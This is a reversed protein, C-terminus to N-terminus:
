IILGHSDAPRCDGSAEIFNAPAAQFGIGGQLGTVKGADEFIERIDNRARDPLPTDTRVVLDLRKGTKRVVGDLQVRGLVSLDLDILFRTSAGGEEGDETSEDDDRQLYLRIQEIEAGNLFPVPVARWDGSAQPENVTRALQGFDDRLRGIVNSRSRQLERQSADGIWARMEGGRLAGLFMLINAALASDPRAVAVSLLQQAVVPSTEQLSKLADDFAPWKGANLIAHALSRPFPSSLTQPTAIMSRVELEIVSGLPVPTPTAIALPGAPTQIVAHGTPSHGSVTGSLLSGAALLTGSSVPFAPATPSPPHIATIRASFQSGAAHSSGAQGSSASRGATAGHQSTSSANAQYMGAAARAAPSGANPGPPGTTAATQSHQGAAPSSPSGPTAPTSAAPASSGTGASPATAAGTGPPNNPGSAAGGAQLLTATVLSGVSLTVASSATTQTGAASLPSTGTFQALIPPPKGNIATVLFQVLAGRSIIQLSLPTDKPLFLDTQQVLIKGLTTGLELQGSVPPNTIVAELKAGVPLKDLGPPVSSANLVIQTVLQPPLPLPPPPPTVTSM